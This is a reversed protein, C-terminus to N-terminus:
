VLQILCNFPFFILITVGQLSIQFGFTQKAAATIVQVYLPTSIFEIKPQSSSGMKVRLMKSHSIHSLGETISPDQETMSIM